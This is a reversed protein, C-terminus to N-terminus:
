YYFALSEEISFRNKFEWELMKEIWNALVKNKIKKLLEVVLEKGDKLDSVEEARVGHFLMCIATVALAFIDSKEASIKM